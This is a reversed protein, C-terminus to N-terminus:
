QSATSVKKDVLGPLSNIDERLGFIKAQGIELYKNKLLFFPSILSSLLLERECAAILDKQDGQYKIVHLMLKRLDNLLYVPFAIPRQWNKLGLMRIHSRSLGVCRVLSILYDKELRWRPIQHYVRMEPNYWIAWGARQIHLTAELDESALKAERGKHNLVLRKPVNELWAQRRVVLGAGPPLIKKRPEYRSAIAGRDVLALFCAIKKFNEPPEIEFNGQIQSGYAGAEPHAQGFAYAAAVWNSDPLNDDDLFGILTGRAEEVARQRAFAAGQEVELTYYLPATESWNAQYAQVIKATNDTSNNDVVIIEWSFHETNIQERLRDLVEPLRKESNFTPIAVTVDVM